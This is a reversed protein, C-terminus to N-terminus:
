VNLDQADHRNPLHTNTKNAHTTCIWILRWFTYIIRIEIQINSTCLLKQTTHQKHANYINVQTHIHMSYKNIDNDYIWMKLLKLVSQTSHMVPEYLNIIWVLIEFQKLFFVCVYLWTRYREKECVLEGSRVRARARTHTSKREDVCVAASGTLRIDLTNCLRTVYVCVCVRVCVREWCVRM